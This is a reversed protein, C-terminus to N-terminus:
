DRVCRVSFGFEKFYPGWYIGSDGNLHRNWAENTSYEASSWWLGDNGMSRFYGNSNRYGGPLASFGSKNNLSLNNGVAGTQSNAEWNTTAAMSKAIKYGTTTGDYNFGNAILYNELATWEDDTPLHWGPPCAAKAAPWNYLVGYTTYNANQKAAAVNADQYDYVYYYPDTNSGSSSPSVSPLYALNEAMWTQNGIKITKYVHGDRSDTFTGTLNDDSSTTFTVEKGYVTCTSNTAYARVYYLTKASLGTLKSEYSGTGTGNSTKSDSTTPNGTTNWCVGCAIITAGGDATVNGGSTATTQTISTIASTTVSSSQADTNDRVCRVILGLEKNYYNRYVDSGYCGLGRSWANNTNSETYSWCFGFYGISQFTGDKYRHGGPLASFGSKNNLSLNNGIAGTQSNTEWNTTAAMSKAIKNGTTTGDYNFGNAILYNELVTWEDDTPLHWGQPCAAKAAPWNYLVGYTTYNANQKAAAVNAGQYDYVYYYPDTNSGSSSPSVSPLYALNEAMWTQNGIQVTKYVHGDRSDTFTGTLNDDSAITFTVENGYVTGASNTAYARVYYLTKTSLGTLKSEYSGTGTGNTTKSDSTTPNGTTNWCVGRAIVTAGGDATVNGGSTATTQTISTIASTTVSSSQADTNDRVCRVSIGYELGSYNRSIHSYSYGLARRWADITSHETSSWWFGNIGINYFVGNNYRYGGPLASFGSENTAGTNPSLWQATGAEKMKGGAVSQGGLFTTLATWEDDTPLHWGAPCAAKAAPWNYLVGYTTYNAQQKAAAVSTGLYDYVYYYPATLSEETPPSVAPLYALNEAMWEKGNITLTKYTRGDRSDKFTGTLIDYSSTTFTEQNGYATGKSNTAYARVYYLTKSSLGTLKSVYSGTGTGNTTTSDSITPNGTTNWCVGRAIVTAGGDATVNGGSTATTQTISTIASTTVSPSEADTNDRVCRVSSGSEKGDFSRGVSSDYYIFGRCWAHNAVSESFSWWIGYRGVFYFPGNPGRCGGPLASFGSKNNLSLNNGIAGIDQNTNWNTTAALSKAIKNGTTTGDYNFGNAILYNELVTWEADTPLHWGLPCAAKAAPWNYLVGYTTYNANQRAAVVSTGEYGYVYYYPDTYSGASSPSVSPLYALNEAMWTQNGIQVTKYNRNDKDICKVFEVNISKSAIPVDSIITTNLGSHFSYLIVDGEKYDLSNDTLGNKLQHLTQPYFEDGLYSVSSKSTNQGTYVAKFGTTGESKLLSLYYIGVMPFKLLFRHTGQTLNQKEQRLLQGNANYLRIEVEESKDISFCFTAEGDTPNPYIYGIELNSSLQNVSTPTKVLLLSEGGLLKITQNTRLNTASISDIEVTDVKSHFTITIDQAILVSCLISLISTLFLKKM